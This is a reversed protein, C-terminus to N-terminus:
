GGRKERELAHMSAAAVQQRASSAVAQCWPWRALVGGGCASSHRSWLSGGV